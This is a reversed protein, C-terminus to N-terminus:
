VKKRNIMYERAITININDPGSVLISFEGTKGLEMSNVTILYRRQVQLHSIFQSPAGHCRGYNELILNGLPVFPYFNDEYLHIYTDLSGNITISYTGSKSVYIQVLEYHERVTSCEKPIYM